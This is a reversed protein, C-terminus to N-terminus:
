NGRNDSWLGENSFLPAFDEVGKRDMIGNAVALLAKAKALPTQQERSLALGEKVDGGKALATVLKLLVQQVDYDSMWDPKIGSAAQKAKAVDGKEILIDVIETYFFRKASVDTVSNAIQLAAQLDGAAAKVVVISDLVFSNKPDQRSLIKNAEESLKRITSATDERSEMKILARDIEQM